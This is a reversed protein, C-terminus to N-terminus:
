CVGRNIQAQEAPIRLTSALPQESICRHVARYAADDVCVTRAFIVLRFAPARAYLVGVCVYAYVCMRGM